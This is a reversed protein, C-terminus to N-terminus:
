KANLLSAIAQLLKDATYPKPLFTQAGVSEADIEKEHIKLGSSLIVKIGPNLKRIARITSPGDMYPMMVDTLLLKVEDQHQAFLVVAETGDDATLVRYGYAELTSRTIERIAAEDDAVLIMEGNGSPLGLDTEEREDHASSEAAPLFVKFETGRGVESYVNIFGGHSKVITLVTSLGLGTGKGVEKTTFFPDFIKEINEKTIGSGTDTVAICAYRGPAANLNMRAYNEDLHENSMVITIKGGAPMADRANILLNMLVQHIQTADGSVTWPSKPISYEININKPLTDKLIKVVEKVLHKPQLIVREGEIGRAFSLVQGILSSGREASEKLVSIMRQSSPDTFRLEFLGLATLIPSLINNLDHAIGGALTGISEMRQARLFEVELRKKETADTNIVLVSNAQGYPDRVLTWRSEITLKRGSKTLHQFEGSWEGNELL